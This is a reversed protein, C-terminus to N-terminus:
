RREVAEEREEALEEIVAEVQDGLAAVARHEHGERRVIRQARDSGISDRSGAIFNGIAQGEHHQRARGVLDHLGAGVANESCGVVNVEGFVGDSRENVLVLGIGRRGRVLNEQALVARQRVAPRVDRAVQERVGIDVARVRLRGPGVHFGIRQTDADHEVVRCIEDVQRHQADIVVAVQDRIRLAEGLDDGAHAGIAFRARCVVGHHRARDIRIAADVRDRGARGAGRDARTVGEQIVDGGRGIRDVVLARAEEGSICVVDDVAVEVSVADDVAGFDRLNGTEIVVFQQVRVVYRTIAAHVLVDAEGGDVFDEVVFM